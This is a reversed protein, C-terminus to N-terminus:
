YTPITRDVDSLDYKLSLFDFFLSLIRTIQDEDWSESRGILFKVAGSENGSPALHRQKRQKQPAQNQKTEKDNCTSKQSLAFVVKISLSPPIWSLVTGIHCLRDM